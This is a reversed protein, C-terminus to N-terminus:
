VEKKSQKSAVDRLQDRLDEVQSYCYDMFEKAESDNLHKTEYLRRVYPYVMKQIDESFDQCVYDNDGEPSAWGLFGKKWNLMMGKLNNLEKIVNEEM